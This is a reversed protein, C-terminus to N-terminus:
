QVFLNNCNCKYLYTKMKKKFTELSSQKVNKPIINWLKSAIYIFTSQGFRMSNVKPIVLFFKIKLAFIETFRNFIKPGHPEFM